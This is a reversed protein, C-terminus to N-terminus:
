RVSGPQPPSRLAQVIRQFRPEGLLPRMDPSTDIGLLAAADTAFAQEILALARENEGLAMYVHALNGPLPEGTAPTTARLEELAATAEKRRGAKAHVYALM